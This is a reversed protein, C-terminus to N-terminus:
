VGAYGDNKTTPAKSIDILSKTVKKHNKKDKLNKTMKKLRWETQIRREREPQNKLILKEQFDGGGRRLRRGIGHCHDTEVTIFDPCHHQKGWTISFIVKM